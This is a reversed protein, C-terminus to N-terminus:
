DYPAPPSASAVLLCVISGGGGVVVIGIGAVRLATAFKMAPGLTAIVGGMAFPTLTASLRGGSEGLGVLGARLDSPAFGTIISRYLAGLIGFGVALIIVGIVAVTYEPAILVILFGTGLCVNAGLLLNLRSDLLSTARGAQSGSIAFTLYGITALAGAQMPTGDLIRIVILSNYTIFGIWIVMMLSRAVLISLVRRHLGLQFLASAYSEGAGGDTATSRKPANPEDLWLYVGVVAPFSLTYLLFPYYWAFLILGSAVLPFIAGSLGSVMFRLGQGAAEREQTYLDGVSTIIIPNLGAFGIGQLFRLALVARFETTFVISTGAIGFIILASMLVPKRGYRDAFIGTVPIMVIAPATFASIILGITAASASFPGILSALIPSLVSTGLVPLLSALLLIQFDTERLINAEDGFLSSLSLM